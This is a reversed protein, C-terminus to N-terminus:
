FIFIFFHYFHLFLYNPSQDLPIISAKPALPRSNSEGLDGVYFFLNVHVHLVM